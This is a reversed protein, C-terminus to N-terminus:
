NTIDFQKACGSLGSVYRITGKSHNSSCPRNGGNNKDEIINEIFSMQIDHAFFVTKM